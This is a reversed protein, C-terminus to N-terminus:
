FIQDLRDSEVQNCARSFLNQQFGLWCGNDQFVRRGTVPELQVGSEFSEVSNVIGWFIQGCQSRGDLTLGEALNVPKMQEVVGVGKYFSALHWGGEQELKKLYEDFILIYCRSKYSKSDDM